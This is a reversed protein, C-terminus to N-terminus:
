QRCIMSNTMSQCGSESYRSCLLCEFRQLLYMVANKSIGISQLSDFSSSQYQNVNDVQILKDAIIFNLRRELIQPERPKSLWFPGTQQWSLGFKLWKLHNGYSNVRLLCCLTGRLASGQKNFDIEITLARYKPSTLITVSLFFEQKVFAAASRSSVTYLVLEVM